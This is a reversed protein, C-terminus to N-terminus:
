MEEVWILTIERQDKSIKETSRKPLIMIIKERKDVKEMDKDRGAKLFAIKILPDNLAFKRMMEIQEMKRLKSLIEKHLIYKIIM